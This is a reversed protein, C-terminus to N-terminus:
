VSQHGQIIDNTLQEYVGEWAFQTQKDFSSGSIEQLTEMLCEGMIPFMDPKVGFRKHKQGLDLLIETLLEIDPGLMNLATDLMETMYKAHMRFRKTAQFEESM